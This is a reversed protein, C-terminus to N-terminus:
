RTLCLTLSLQRMAPHRADAVSTVGDQGLWLGGTLQSPVVGVWTAFDSVDTADEKMREAVVVGGWGGQTYQKIATLQELTYGSYRAPDSAWLVDVDASVLTDFSFEPSLPVAYVPSIGYTNSSSTAVLHNWM